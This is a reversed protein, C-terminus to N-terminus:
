VVVVVVVGGCAMVGGCVRVIVGTPWKDASYARVFILSFHIGGLSAVVYPTLAASFSSVFM